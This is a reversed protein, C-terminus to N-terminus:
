LYFRFIEPLLSFLFLIEQYSEKGICCLSMNQLFYMMQWLFILNLSAQFNSSKELPEIYKKTPISVFPVPLSPIRM